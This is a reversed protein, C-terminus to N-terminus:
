KPQTLCRWSSKSESTQCARSTLLRRPLGLRRGVSTAAVADTPSIIAGLAFAFALGLGPLVSNFLLGACVTTLVVLPVALGAIAKFDRRFDRAPMHRGHRLAAAAAHGGPDM